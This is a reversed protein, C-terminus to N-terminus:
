IGLPAEKVNIIGRTDCVVFPCCGDILQIVCQEYFAKYV